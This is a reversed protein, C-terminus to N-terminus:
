APSPLLPVPCLRVLWDVVLLVGIVVPVGFFGPTFIVSLLITAKTYSSMAVASRRVRDAVLRDHDVEHRLIRGYLIGSVIAGLMAVVYGFNFYLESFFGGRLGGHRNPDLGAQRVTWDGFGWQRRFSSYRSPVFPTYGALYSRGMLRHGDFGSLIWALDRIDSFQSGYVFKAVVGRQDTTRPAAQTGREPIATARYDSISIALPVMVVVLLAPWISIKISRVSLFILSFIVLPVLSVGRQGSLGAMFLTVLLVLGRVVTPINMLRIASLLVGLSFLVNAANMVPRLATNDFASFTGAGYHFGKAILFLFALAEFAFLGMAARDDIVLKTLSRDFFGLAISRPTRAQTATLFLAIIFAAGLTGFLYWAEPLQVVIRRFAYPGVANVNAKDFAFPFFIVPPVFGFLVPLLAARYGFRLAILLNLSLFVALGVLWTILVLLPM